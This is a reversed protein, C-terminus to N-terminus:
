KNLLLYALICFYHMFCSLVPKGRDYSDLGCTSVLTLLIQDDALKLVEIVTSTQLPQKNIQLM